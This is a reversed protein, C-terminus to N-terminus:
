CGCLAGIIMDKAAIEVSAGDRGLIAVDGIVLRDFAFKRKGSHAFVLRNNKITFDDIHGLFKGADSYLPIGLKLRYGKKNEKGTVLFTAAGGSFECGASEAFFENENENCCIYGEIMDKVCSVSMIYGRKKKDKSSINTCFIQSAKM